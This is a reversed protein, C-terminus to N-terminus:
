YIRLRSGVRSPMMDQGALTRASVNHSAWTENIFRVGDACALMLRDRRAIWWARRGAPMKRKRGARSRVLAGRLRKRGKKTISHCRLISSGSSVLNKLVDSRVLSIAASTGYSNALFAFQTWSMGGYNTTPRGEKM